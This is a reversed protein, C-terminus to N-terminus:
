QAVVGVNLGEGGALSPLTVPGSLTLAGVIVPADLARFTVTGVRAIPLILAVPARGLRVMRTYGGTSVIVAHGASLPGADFLPLSVLRLEQREVAQTLRAQEPASLGLSAIAQPTAAPTVLALEVLTRVHGGLGAEDAVIAAPGTLGPAIAGIDDNFRVWAGALLMVALLSYVTTRLASAGAHQPLPPETEARPIAYPQSPDM